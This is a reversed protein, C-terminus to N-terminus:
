FVTTIKLEKGRFSIVDGQECGELEEGLPSSLSITLYEKGDISLKGASIAFFYNSVSTQVVAGEIVENCAQTPDINQLVKENALAENLRRIHQEKELHIMARGTEHKDGASGKTESKVAEDAEDIGRKAAAIQEAIARQCHQYLKEKLHQM